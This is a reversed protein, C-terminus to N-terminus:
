RSPPTKPDVLGLAVLCTRIKEPTVPKVIYDDCLQKYSSSVVSIDSSSTVMVIRSVGGSYEMPHKVEMQTEWARLAKVVDQGRMGPMEVDMAVLDFRKGIGYAFAFECLASPGDEVTTCSGYASLLKSVKVRSILEDDVILINM